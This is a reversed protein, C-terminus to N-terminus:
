QMFNHLKMLSYLFLVSMLKQRFIILNKRTKHLLFVPTVYLSLFLLFLFFFSFRLAFSSFLYARTPFTSLLPCFCTYAECSFCFGLARPCSDRKERPRGCDRLRDSDIVASGRDNGDRRERTAM